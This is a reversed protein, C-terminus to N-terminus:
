DTRMGQDLYTLLAFGPSASEPCPMGQSGPLLMESFHRGTSPLM